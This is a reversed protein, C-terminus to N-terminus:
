RRARRSLAYIVAGLAFAIAGAVLNALHASALLGLALALAGLPIADGGPLRLLEARDAHRRRLVMVSAATGIYACLRAVMSLLALEVFSGTLALGLALMAQLVIAAVPTRWRPHLRAFVAPAAGDLAIAYVYRPGFLMTTTLTGLISVAAGAGLLLAGPAGAFSRAADVLPARSTSLADLTGLAVAQVGLYILTVIVIMRLLAAPLDRKPNRYEGAAAPSNEFGAYAFLLLLAAEGLRADAPIALAALRTPEIFWVGVVVLFLLPVLKAIVLAVATNASARVGVLNVTTVLALVGIIAAVRPPGAGLVPMFAALSQVFGNALAAAVAVRTVWTMWGIEFGIFDGFAERAYLYAGGPQDFCSAAQAYCLVLLSVAIGALLVAWLSAPGLLLAASAPLLYIGSGVVDNISLALLPWRGVARILGPRSPPLSAM